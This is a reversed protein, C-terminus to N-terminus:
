SLQIPMPLGEELGDVYRILASAVRRSSALAERDLALLVSRSCLTGGGATGGALRLAPSSASKLQLNGTTRHQTTSPPSPPETSPLQGSLLILSPKFKLELSFWDSCRRKGGVSVLSSLVLGICVISGAIDVYGREIVYFSGAERVNEDGLFSRFQRDAKREIFHFHEFLLSIRM